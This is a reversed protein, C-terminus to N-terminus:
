LGRLAVVLLGDGLDGVGVAVDRFYFGLFRERLLFYFLHRLLDLRLDLAAGLQVFVLLGEGLLVLEPLLTGARRRRM